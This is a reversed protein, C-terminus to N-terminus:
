GVSRAASTGGHESSNLADHRFVRNDSCCCIRRRAVRLFSGFLRLSDTAERHMLRIAM